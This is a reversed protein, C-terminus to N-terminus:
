TKPPRCQIYEGRKELISGVPHLDATAALYEARGQDGVLDVYADLDLDREVVKVTTTGKRSTKGIFARGCGCGGDPDGIPGGPKVRDTDCVFGLVALEGEKTWFFDSERQGQTERTTVLIKM